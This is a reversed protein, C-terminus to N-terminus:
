KKGFKKDRVLKMQRNAIKNLGKKMNKVDQRPNGKEGEEVAATKKVREKSFDGIASAGRSEGGGKTPWPMPANWKDAKSLANYQKDSPRKNDPVVQPPRAEKAEDIETPGGFVEAAVQKRAEHIAAMTKGKLAKTIVNTADVASKNWFNELLNMSM